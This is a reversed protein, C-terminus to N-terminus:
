LDKLVDKNHLMARAMEQTVRNKREIFGNQQPTIPTSFELAIGVSTCFSEIQSDEFEKGHDSRIWDVKLGKENQVRECLLEIHHPAESKSQLLIVWTFKTFDDVVVMNYKKGGLSEKRTPGILDVHLLELPRATTTTLTAHHQTKTQKGLQCPGCVPICCKDGWKLKPIGLVADNKSVILLQKYSAHGDKPTM